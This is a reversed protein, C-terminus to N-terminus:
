APRIDAHAPSRRGYHTKTEEAMAAGNATFDAPGTEATELPMSVRVTTGKQRESDITFRGGGSVVMEQMLQLGMNAREQSLKETPDFGKGSDHIILKVEEKSAKLGVTVQKAQGHAIANTLAEQAVRFLITATDEPLRRQGLTELFLVSTGRRITIRSFHQRLAASLGLVDLEPPRLQVALGKLCAVSKHFLKRTKNMWHLSEQPNESRLATEIADFHASMGVALSGVDHHLICSIRKREKEREALLEQLFMRQRQQTLKRETIDEAMDAKKSTLEDFQLSLLTEARRLKAAETGLERVQRRLELQILVHQSLVRLASLQEAGLSRPVRDMVCLTGLAHGDPTVLPVGAYFRVRPDTRVLPNDAFRLDSQADCVQLMKDKQLIAHACFATERPTEAESVGIRSKFWRRSEDVLSVLAIPTQCIRAALLTLNDFSQEPPTDLVHYRRLSELRQAEDTPLPATM